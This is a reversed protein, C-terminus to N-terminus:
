LRSRLMGLLPHRCVFIVIFWTISFLAVAMLIAPISGFTRIDSIYQFTMRVVLVAAVSAPLAFASLRVFLRWEVYGGAVIALHILVLSEIGIVMVCVRLLDGNWFVVIIAIGALRWIITILSATRYGGHGYIIQSLASTGFMLPVLFALMSLLPVSKTWQHGFLIDIVLDSAFSLFLAVPLGLIFIFSLYIAAVQDRSGQTSVRGALGGTFISYLGDMSLKRIFDGGSFAKEYFASYSFGITRSIVTEPAREYAFRALNNLFPWVSISVIEKLNRFRPRLSLDKERVFYSLVLGLIAVVVASIITSYYSFGRMALGVTTLASATQLTVTYFLIRKLHMRRVLVAFIVSQVPIFFFNFSLIFVLEPVRDDNFMRASVLTLLCMALFIIVGTILAMGICASFREQTLDDITHIYTALGLERFFQMLSVFAIAVSQLGVEEPTLIRALLMSTILSTIVGFYREFYVLIVSRIHIMEADVFYM